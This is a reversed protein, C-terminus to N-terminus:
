MGGRSRNDTMERYRELLELTEPDDLIASLPCELVLCLKLLTSLEAKNTSRVGQELSTITRLALGTQNALAAQSFGKEKRVEQLKTM